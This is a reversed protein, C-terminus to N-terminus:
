VYRYGLGAGDFRDPYGLTRPLYGELRVGAKFGAIRYNVNIYSNLLSKEDPQIANIKPDSLLYQYNAEMNGSISGQATADIGTSVLLAGILIRFIKM